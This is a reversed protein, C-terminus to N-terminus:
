GAIPKSTKIEASLMPLRQIGQNYLSALYITWNMKTDNFKQVVMPLAVEKHTLSHLTM